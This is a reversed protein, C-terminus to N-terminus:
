FPPKSAPAPVAEPPHQNRFNLYALIEKRVEAYPKDVPRNAKDRWGKVTDGEIPFQGYQFNVTRFLGSDPELFVLMEQKEVYSDEACPVNSRGLVYIRDLTFDGEIVEVPVLTAMQRYLGRYNAKSSKQVKVRAIFAASRTLEDVPMVRLCPRSQAFGLGVLLPLMAILLTNKM